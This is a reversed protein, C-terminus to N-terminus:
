THFRIGYVTYNKKIEKNIFMHFIEIFGLVNNHIRKRYETKIKVDNTDVRTETKMVGSMLTDLEVKSQDYQKKLEFNVKRGSKKMYDNFDKSLALMDKTDKKNIRMWDSFIQNAAISDKVKINKDSVVSISEM